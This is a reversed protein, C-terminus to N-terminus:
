SIARGIGVGLVFLSAIFLFIAACWVESSVGFPDSMILLFVVIFLAPAIVFEM